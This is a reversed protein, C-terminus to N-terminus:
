STQKSHRLERVVDELPVGRDADLSDLAEMIGSEDDETLAESTAEVVYRGPPLSKLEAPVTHGDWEITKPQM